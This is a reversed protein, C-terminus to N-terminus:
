THAVADPVKTLPSLFEDTASDTKRDRYGGRYGFKASPEVATLTVLGTRHDSGAGHQFRMLPAPTHM